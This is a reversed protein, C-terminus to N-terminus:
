SALEHCVVLAQSVSFGRHANFLFCTRCCAPRGKMFRSVLTEGTMHYVVSQAMSEAVFGTASEPTVSHSRSQTRTLAPVLQRTFLEM